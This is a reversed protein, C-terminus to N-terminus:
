AEDPNRKFPGLIDHEIEAVAKKLEIEVEWDPGCDHESKGTSLDLVFRIPKLAQIEALRNAYPQIAMLYRDKAIRLEEM